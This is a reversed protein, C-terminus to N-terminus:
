RMPRGSRRAQLPRRRLDCARRDRDSESCAHDLCLGRVSGCHCARRSPLTTDRLSRTAASCSCPKARIPASIAASSILNKLLDASLTIIQCGIADAQFLNLLERPSAWLLEIEPRSRLIRLAQEAHPVPGRGTDAIRGAFVSVIAPTRYALADCVREVQELTMVATVNLKVGASSLAAIASGCFEGLTNTAPVKVYVNSGWSAIERAQAAMTPFDDALVEFCIPRGTAWKLAALAFMRYDSVGAARMLTPNTTFGAICSDGSARAIVDLDAGDAFIKIALGAVAGGM